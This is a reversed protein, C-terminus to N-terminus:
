ASVRTREFWMHRARANLSVRMTCACSFHSNKKEKEM